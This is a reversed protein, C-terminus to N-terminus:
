KKQFIYMKVREKKYKPENLWPPVNGPNGILDHEDTLRFGHKLFASLLDQRSYHLGGCSAKRTSDVVPEYVFLTADDKMIGKIDKLMTDPRSFHHFVQYVIVKDMTNSPLDTSFETGKVAHVISSQPGKRLQVFRDMVLPLQRMSWGDIDEAYYTLSDYNALIIGALWGSGFGIDAIVDGPKINFIRFETETGRTMSDLHPIYGSIEHYYKDGRVIKRTWRCSSLFLVIAALLLIRM